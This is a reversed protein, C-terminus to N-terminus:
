LFELMRQAELSFKCPVHNLLEVFIDDRRENSLPTGHLKSYLTNNVRALDAGLAAM